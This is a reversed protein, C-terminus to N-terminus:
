LTINAGMGPLWCDDEDNDDDISSRVGPFDQRRLSYTARPIHLATTPRNRLEDVGICYPSVGVRPLALVSRGWPGGHSGKKEKKENESAFNV